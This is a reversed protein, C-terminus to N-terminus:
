ALKQLHKECQALIKDVEQIDYHADIDALLGKQKLYDVVPKTKERYV